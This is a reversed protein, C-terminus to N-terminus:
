KEKLRLLQYQGASAVFEYKTEFIEAVRPDYPPGFERNYFIVLWVPPATQFQEVIEDMVAPDAAALVEQLFYFRMCPLAQAAVYWKPEVRYAMFSDRDEEPVLAYLTQADAFLTDMEEREALRANNASVGADLLVTCCILTCAGTVAAFWIKAHFLANLRKCRAGFHRILRPPECAFVRRIWAFMASVGMVSLPVGLILYHQYFKHSLFASLGAAAAGCVMSFALAPSRRCLCLAGVCTLAAIWIAMHGYSSYLLHAIRSASGTEAYMLNHLISGYFAEELAGEAWLWLCVPVLVLALGLAFEAACRALPAFARTLLMYVTLALVMACLPLVNNARLLFCLMSLAGLACAPAFLKKEEVCGDGFVDLIVNLGILTFLNAYEESLNGGGVLYSILALYALQVPFVPSHLRHAIRGILLLCAFLFLVQEIFVASTSYGGALVQPIWQILFLLPGKHDFIDTYPAYGQSLATGMTLYIANDSGISPGLPTNFTYFVLAFLLAMLASVLTRLVLSKKLFM